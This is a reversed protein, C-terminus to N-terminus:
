AKLFRRLEASEIPKTLHATFGAALARAKDEPQGWGSVAIIVVSEGARERRLQRRTEYGDIGPMGIDLLIMGPRLTRAREIGTAGDYAVHSRAGIARVLSVLANAADRNDDIILIEPGDHTAAPQVPASDKAFGLRRAASRSRLRM